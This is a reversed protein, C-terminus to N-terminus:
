RGMGGRPGGWPAGRVGRGRPSGRDMGGRRHMGGRQMGGRGMGGGRGGGFNDSMMGYKQAGLQCGSQDNPAPFNQEGEGPGEEWGRKAAPKVSMDLLSPPCQGPFHGPPASMGGRSPPRGRNVGEPGGYGRGRGRGRTYDHYGFGGRTMSGDERAMSGGERAVSGGEHYDYQPAGGDGSTVMREDVDNYENSGGDPAQQSEVHRDQRHDVDNSNYNQQQQQQQPPLQQQHNTWMDPQQQQQQQQGNSGMQQPNPQMPRM